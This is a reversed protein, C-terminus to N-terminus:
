VPRTVGRITLDGEIEFEDGPEAEAGEVRRSEFRIEPHNEVDLFDASRLHADRDAVGTDISAAGIRVEVRSEDPSAEDIEVQGEVDKFRGKVRTIMMHKTSFEVLTHAPDLTWTTRVATTEGKTAMDAEQKGRRQRKTCTQYGSNSVLQYKVLQTNDRLPNAGRPRFRGFGP